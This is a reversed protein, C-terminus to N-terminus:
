RAMNWKQQPFLHFVKIIILAIKSHLFPPFACSSKINMSSHVQIKTICHFMGKTSWDFLLNMKISLM